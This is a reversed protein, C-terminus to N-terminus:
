RYDSMITDLEAFREFAAACAREATPQDPAYVVIRVDVGMHYEKYEFRALTQANAFGAGGLWAMWGAFILRFLNLRSRRSLFQAGGAGWNRPSHAASENRSPAVFRCPPSSLFCIM